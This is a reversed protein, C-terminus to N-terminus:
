KGIDMDEVYIQLANWEWIQNSKYTLRISLSPATVPLPIIEGPASDEPIDFPTTFANLDAQNFGVEISGFGEGINDFGMMQKDRGPKKFDLWPWQIVSDWSQGDDFKEHEVAKSVKDEHRMYLNGRLHAFHEIVFPFVYHSWKGRTGGKNMTFIYVENSMITVALRTSNEDM